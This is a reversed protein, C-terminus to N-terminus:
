RIGKDYFRTQEQSFDLEFDHVEGNRNKCVFVKLQNPSYKQPDSLYPRHLFMVVDAAHEIGSSEGLDSLNPRVESEEDKSNNRGDFQRNMQALVMVPIKFKDAIEKKLRKAAIGIGTARYENDVKILGIYDVIVLAVPEVRNEDAVKAIIDSASLGDQDIIDLRYQKLEEEARAVKPANSPLALNKIAVQSAVSLLRRKLTEKSMELTFLLVRSHKATQLGIQCALSTKCNGPRAAVIVLNSEGQLIYGYHEISPFGCELPKMVLNAQIESLRVSHSFHM